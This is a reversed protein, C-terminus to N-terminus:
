ATVESPRQLQAAWLLNAFEFVEQDSKQGVFVAFAGGAPYARCNLRMEIAKVTRQAEEATLRIPHRNSYTHPQIYDRQSIPTKRIRFVIYEKM